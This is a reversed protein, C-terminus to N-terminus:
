ATPIWFRFTSGIGLESEVDVGGGHREAIYKVIALGLGTGGSRRSRATDVRYFREFIRPLDRAPIGSGEDAVAVVARGEDESLTVRVASGGESYARANELLNGVALAMERANARVDVDILTAELTIGSAEFAPRRDGVESEVIRSLSVVEMAPSAAELRSLDLLDSVLAALRLAEDHLHEAFTAATEPEDPLASVITESAAILAAVPTKLEHSADAVFDKMIEAAHRNATVDHLVILARRDDMPKVTAHLWTSPRGYEFGETALAAGSSIHRALRRISAPARVMGSGGGIDLMRRAADNMLHIDGTKEVVVVGEGLTSLIADRDQVLAESRTAVAETTKILGGVASALRDVDSGAHRVVTGGQAAVATEVRERMSRIKRREARGALLVVATVVVALLVALSPALVGIGALLALVVGVGGAASLRWSNSSM